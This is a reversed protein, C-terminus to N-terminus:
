RPLITIEFDVRRAGACDTVFFVLRYSGIFGPGPQWRFAGSVSDLTSGVPLARLQGAVEEGGTIVASCSSEASLDLTLLELERLRVPRVLDAPALRALSTGTEGRLSAGNAVTFYRSGIGEASGADDTVIWAITHIGDALATTDLGRFGVPGASNNLGPFLGSVDPRFHNYDVTGADAGDVLVHITSGDLPITKPKPTLAWGYNVYAPGGITEGQAPTDIAGFPRTASANDATIVRTGLQVQNGEADEAVAILTFVGNGQGPLMNTLLLYGWGARNASPLDSFLAEVDPRAGPVLVATGLFVPAAGEGAVPTRFIDVKKVRLDDLAWGGVAISGTVVAGNAPTDVAGFPVQPTASGQVITLARNGITVSGSRRGGTNPSVLFEYTAPNGNSSTGRSIWPANIFIPASCSATVTEVVTAGRGPVDVASTGLVPTCSTVDLTFIRTTGCGSGNVAALTFSYRGPTSPTGSLEGNTGLTVGPPLTGAAVRFAYTGSGTATVAASYNTGVFGNPLFPTTIQAPGCIPLAFDIGTTRGGVVPQIATGARPDCGADPCAIGNYLMAGLAPAPEARAFLTVAPVSAVYTGDSATSARAVQAGAGDFLSVAAAGVSAGNSDLVAGSVIAGRVLAIDIGSTAAGGTVAIARGRSPDCSGCAVDYYVEDAYGQENGTAVFYEGAALGDLVFGGLRDTTTTTRLGSRTYANVRIGDIGAGTGADRVTGGISGAPLMLFDIGTRVQGATVTVPTGRQPPCDPCIM